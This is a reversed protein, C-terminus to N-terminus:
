SKLDSTKQALPVDKFPPTSQNHFCCHPELSKWLRVHLLDETTISAQSSLPFPNSLIGAKEMLPSSNIFPCDFHQNPSTNISITCETNPDFSMEWTCWLCGPLVAFQGGWDKCISALQNKKWRKSNNLGSFLWIINPWRTPPELKWKYCVPSPRSCVLEELRKHGEHLSRHENEILNDGGCFNLVGTSNM